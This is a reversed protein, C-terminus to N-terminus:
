KKIGLEKEMIWYHRIRKIGPVQTYFFLKKTWPIIVIRQGEERMSKLCNFLLTTGIGRFRKRETVGIPGFWHPELASYVSFGIMKGKEEAIWVKPKKYKFAIKAEYVWFIPFESRIFELVSKMDEKQARRISLSAFNGDMIRKPMYFDILDIEYDITEGVKKFGRKICFSLGEEYNIDIGSFLHWLPYDCIRVKEVYEEELRTELENFLSHAIGKRRFKEDVVFVKIWAIKKHLDVLEKPERKRKVGLVFGVVKDDEVAVLSYKSEFNPDKFTIRELTRDSIIDKNLSLNLLSRVAEFHEKNFEIIKM